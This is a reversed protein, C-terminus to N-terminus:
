KKLALAKFWNKLKVKSLFFTVKEENEISLFTNYSAISREKFQTLKIKTEM